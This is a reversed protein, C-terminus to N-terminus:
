NRSSLLLMQTTDLLRTSDLESLLAELLSSTCVLCFPIFALLQTNWRSRMARFSFSDDFLLFKSKQFSWRVEQGLTLPTADQTHTRGIKIINKFEEAKRHLSAHLNTLAPILNKTFDIAAAVHMVTPFVDNSSQGRNV